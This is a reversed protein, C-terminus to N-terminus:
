SRSNAAALDAATSTGVGPYKFNFTATVVFSTPAGALMLPAYKWQWLADAAAKDLLPNSSRVTTISEISGDVDVIAQLVVVGTLHSAAAIPSYVPVVRHLLDPPKIAGSRRFRPPSAATRVPAPAVPAGLGGVGGVIGGAVGDAVGGEVGAVADRLAASVPEP